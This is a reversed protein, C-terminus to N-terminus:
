YKRRIPITLIVRTGVAQGDKYLDKYVYGYKGKFINSLIEFRNQIAKGSFSEHDPKQRQKIVKAQERGIGNDEITCILVDQECKFDVQLHKAGEKHLLGHILANEIFPQIILPPLMIGELPPYQINYDFDKKFRLKELSLYIDLLIIEQEFDIFDKASYNLTRRVLNSFTTIYSYSKEIDGKLVLDQISNLSNFIFHPNMQSQIAILRSSNLENIQQSKKRQQNLQYRYVFVVLSIFVIVALSIFWWQAYYPPAIHFTYYVPTSFKGQQELKAVFTYNGPSLANYQITNSEFKNINWETEYGELKYYYHILEHNRLAPCYLELQIKRQKSNYNGTESVPRLENNVFVRNIKLVPLLNTKHSYNLDIHQVGGSHSVWLGGQHITFDILRHDSFGYMSHISKLLKGQMDFQYLRSLSKILFSNQFILLKNVPIPQHDLQIKLSDIVNHDKIILIGEKKVSIYLKGNNYDMSGPFLDHGQYQIRNTKGLSDITYLGNATAAYLNKNVPNYELNYIRYQFGPLSTEQCASRGDWACKRIGLNTGIYFLQDSIFVADKLSGQQLSRTSKTSTNYARITGNDYIVFKGNASSYIGNISKHGSSRISNLTQNKYNLVNGKSSGLLLGNNYGTAITSVPDEKFSNIVDPINLDPIVIVGNDFTSLLYNGEKDKYVDSIFHDGFQFIGNDSTISGNFFYVGNITSCAWLENGTEHLKLNPINLLNQNPPIMRCEMTKENFLYCDKTKINIAYAQQKLRFFRLLNDYFSRNLQIGKLKEKRFVGKSYLIVSDEDAAHFLRENSSTIFTGNIYKDGCNYKQLLKGAENIVHIQRAGILLNNDNGISLTIDPKGENEALEYFLRCQKAKIEFVQNNLNHCFISGKNNICFGFVSNSKDNACDIKEYKYFDYVYLGENTAFWYNLDQDQIVDYIQM